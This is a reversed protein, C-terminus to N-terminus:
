ELKPKLKHNIYCSFPNERIIRTNMPKEWEKHQAPTLDKLTKRFEHMYIKSKTKPYIHLTLKKLFKSQAHLTSTTSHTIEM